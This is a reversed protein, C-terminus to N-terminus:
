ASRILISPNQKGSRVTNNPDWETVAQIPFTHGMERQAPRRRLGSIVNDPIQKVGSFHTNGPPELIKDM